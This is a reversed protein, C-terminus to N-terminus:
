LWPIVAKFAPAVHRVCVSLAMAGRWWRSGPKAPSTVAADEVAACEGNKLMIGSPFWRWGLMAVISKREFGCFHMKMVSLM